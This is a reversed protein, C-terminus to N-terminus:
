GKWGCTERERGSAGKVSSIEQVKDHLTEGNRKNIVTEKLGTATDM